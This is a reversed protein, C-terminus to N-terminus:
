YRTNCSALLIVQSFMNEEAWFQCRRYCLKSCLNSYFELNLGHGCLLLKSIGFCKILQYFAPLNSTGHASRLRRRRGLLVFGRVPNFSSDSRSVCRILKEEWEKDKPRRISHFSLGRNRQNSAACGVMCCRGMGSFLPFLKWVQRLFGTSEPISEAFGSTMLALGLERMRLFITVWMSQMPRIAM